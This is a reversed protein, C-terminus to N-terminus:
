HTVSKNSLFTRLGLSGCAKAQAAITGLIINVV